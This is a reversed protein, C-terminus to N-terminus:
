TGLSGFPVTQWLHIAFAGGMTQAYQDLADPDGFADIAADQAEAPTHPDDTLYTYQSIFSLGTEQDTLQMAVQTAYQGGRGMAWEGYDGASPLTGPDLAAQDPIRALTDSVQGYMRNWATDGTTGGQSRYDDRAERASSGISVHYAMFGAPNGTSFADASGYDDEGPV